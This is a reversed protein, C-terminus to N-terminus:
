RVIEVAAVLLEKMHLCREVTTVRKMSFQLKSKIMKREREGNLHCTKGTHIMNGECLFCNIWSHIHAVYSHSEDYIFAKFNCDDFSM